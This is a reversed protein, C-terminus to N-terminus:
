ESCSESGGMCANTTQSILPHLKREVIHLHPVYPRIQTWLKQTDDRNLSVDLYGKPERHLRSDVGFNKWLMGQFLMLEEESHANLHFRVQPSRLYIRGTRSDQTKGGRCSGQDLLLAVLGMPHTLHQIKRTIRKVGDSDHFWSAYVKLRGKVSAATFYHMEGGKCSPDAYTAVRCPHELSKRVFSAKWEVYQRDTNGWCWQNTHFRKVTCDGLLTGILFSRVAERDHIADKIGQVKVM